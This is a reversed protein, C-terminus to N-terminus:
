PARFAAEAWPKERWRLGGPLPEAAYELHLVRRHGPATAASSAHLLLPRMFLVDGMGAACITETKGLRWEEIAAVPLRGGRHSGPFVRLPGNEMGCPDLHIRATLMRELIEPPPQVHCIGDKTSWGSFGPTDRQEEVAITLDQHWAVKWNAGPAKDFLIARVPSADTGIIGCVLELLRPERAIEAACACERLPIRVGGARHIEPEARDAQWAELDNILAAMESEDFLAAAIAFGRELLDTMPM